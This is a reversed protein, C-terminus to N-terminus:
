WMGRSHWERDLMDNIYDITDARHAAATMENVEANYGERYELIDGAWIYYESPTCARGCKADLAGLMFPSLGANIADLLGSHPQTAIQQTM